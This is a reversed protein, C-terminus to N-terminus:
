DRHVGHVELEGICQEHAVLIGFRPCLVRQLAGRRPELHPEVLLGAVGVELEPERTHGGHAVPYVALELEPEDLVGLRPM